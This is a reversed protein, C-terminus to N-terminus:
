LEEKSSDKEKTTTKASNSSDANTGTNEVGVFEELSVYGDMDLDSEIWFDETMEQGLSEFMKGLEEKSIKADQNTDISVFIQIMSDIHAQQPDKSQKREQTPKKAPPGEGGKPGTFEEWSIFGDGDKDEDKWLADINIQKGDKEFYTKAEQRSLKWDGNADIKKFENPLPPQIEIIEVDYRLTTGGPVGNEPVGYDGYALHPPIVIYAKSGKCLGLMGQDLGPIVKGQGIPFSPAIGKDHSSEVKTGHKGNKSSPDITITFHFSVTHDLLVETPKNKPDSSKPCKTPGEYVTVKVGEDKSSSCLPLFCLVLVLIAMWCHKCYTSRPNNWGHYHTAM